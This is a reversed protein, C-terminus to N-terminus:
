SKPGPVVVDAKAAIELPTPEGCGFVSVLSLGVILTLLLTKVTARGNGSTPIM